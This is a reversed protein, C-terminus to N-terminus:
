VNFKGVISKLEEAVKSLDQASLNVKSSSNTMENAAVNVESIDKAIKGAVSSSESVNENVGQIGGAVQVVNGAIEKTTVSQEEIATAITSVIENVENIIKSILTIQNISSKTSNQIGDIKNKIERTAEATQSALEKIENAVVAFGKGAEGARAAEITANLALLNTQESIKNITETVKGIGQASEGLNHIKDSASKAESVAKDAIIRAKETNQAIENITANMQESSTAVTTINTVAKEAASTVSTMNSSMVEAASAVINSKGSVQEAGLSMQKSVSSLEKSSDSLADSGKRIQKIMLSLQSSMDDLAKSLIGIEDSRDINLTKTFDGQSMNKAFDIGLLIPKTISISILIGIFVVLFGGIGAISISTWLIRSVKSTIDKEPVFTTFVLSSNEKSNLDKNFLGGVNSLSVSTVYDTEERFDITRIKIGKSEQYWNKLSDEMKLCSGILKNDSHSHIVTSIPDLIAVSANNFGNTKMEDFIDNSIALINSWDLYALFFGNLKGELNKTKFCFRYTAGKTKGFKNLFNSEMLNVSRLNEEMLNSTEKVIVIKGRLEDPSIEKNIDERAAAELIKGEKDTLLLFSFGKQGHLMSLFQSKLEETTQFEIAMGFIDEKTWDFFLNKQAKIFTDVKEGGNLSILKMLKESNKLENSRASYYTIGAILLMPLLSLFLGCLIKSRLSISSFWSFIKM